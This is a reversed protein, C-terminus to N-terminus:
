KSSAIRETREKSNSSFRPRNESSMQAHRFRSEAFGNSLTQSRSGQLGGMLVGALTALVGGATSVIVDVPIM